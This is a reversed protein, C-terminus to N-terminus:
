RTLANRGAPPTNRNSLVNETSASGTAAGMVAARTLGEAQPSVNPRRGRAAIRLELADLLADLEPGQASLMQGVEANARSARPGYIASDIAANVPRNFVADKLRSEPAITQGTDADRLPGLNAASQRRMETQSGSLVAGATQSFVAESQLRRIIPEADADGLVIRLKQDNWEKSFEAWASASDNRSTGMLAEVDARVGSRFADQQAPSLKGFNEALQPPSMASVRGGQMMSQGDELAREMAMNSAYGTRADAYGPVGGDLVRDIDRLTASLAVNKFHPSQPDGVLRSLDSRMGHLQRPEIVGQPSRSELFALQRRLESGTDIGAQDAAARMNTLTETVDLPERSALAAEYEPGLRSTRETANARTANFAADPDGLYQTIDARIRESNTDARDRLSRGLVAGGDGGQVALGQALPRFDSTDALMADDTLRGLEQRPNGGTRDARDLANTMLRTSQPGMGVVGRELLNGVGRVAAGVGLAVPEAAGGLVGGLAVPLPNSAIARVPGLPEEPKFQDDQAIQNATMGAGTGAGMLSRTAWSAGKLLPGGVAMTAGTMGVSGALQGRDFAEPNAKYAESDRERVADRGAIYGDGSLFSAVGGVTDNLGLTAGSMMGRGGSNYEQLTAQAAESGSLAQNYAEIEAPRAEGSNVMPGLTEIVNQNASADARTDTPPSLSQIATAMEARTMTKPFRVSRGDPIAITVFDSM